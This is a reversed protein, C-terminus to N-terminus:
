KFRFDLKFDYLWPIRPDINIQELKKPLNTFLDTKLHKCHGYFTVIITDDKVRIDGESWALIENALHQANWKKYDDELNMRLEYNAAQAIMALALKAYRINLNLTSARDLGMKNEFRFFEEVSWRKDFDGSLLKVSDKDSTTVFPVYSYDHEQEGLREAIMRYKAKEKDFHFDVEGIAFGAWQRIFDISAMIKKVRETVLAPAFLDFKSSAGAWGFLRSTFHEKDAVLLSHGQAIKDTAELLKISAATTPMGTSSMTAMMPQGTLASVTFFTQLMKEAPADPRKKKKTMVRKSTSLIRHPDIAIVEGQYHGCLQRQLGLNLMMDHAEGYTHGNLMLHVQEDSALQGMGNLLQFGQHGLSNKKRIRNICMASENVLQLAIRPEIDDDSKNSWAKIIDWAGLKLLGPVLLWSGVTTGSVKRSLM